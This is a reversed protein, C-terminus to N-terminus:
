GSAYIDTRHDVVGGTVQEPAMYRPTGLLQGTRTMATVASDGSELLKALGFDTIFVKDGASVVINQPKLDRHVVGAQHAAHLGAALQTGLSIVRAFSLRGSQLLTRLDVGEILEMTLFMTGQSEGLDHIRVVNPHTVRRALLLEQKFRQHAQESDSVDSLLDSRIIKLAVQSGLVEDRAKYVAGMGGTGILSEIRFRSAFL